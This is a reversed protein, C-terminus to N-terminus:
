HRHTKNPNTKIFVSQFILSSSLSTGRAQKKKRERVGKFSEEERIVKQIRRRREIKSNSELKPDLPNIM